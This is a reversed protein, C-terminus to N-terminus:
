PAALRATPGQSDAAHAIVWDVLPLMTESLDRGSETLSYEVRPPVEPHAERSVLDDAELTHLTQSLMKDTVGPLQRRLEAWRMTGRSLALLVLVAWRSTVHDLLVRSPCNPQFVDSAFDGPAAEM